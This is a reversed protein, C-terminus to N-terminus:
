AHLLPTGCFMCGLRHSIAWKCAERFQASLTDLRWTRGFDNVLLTPASGHSAFAEQLVAHLRPGIPLTLSEGNKAYCTAVSITNRELDVDEPRLTMVEQRRLGTLLGVLVVRRLALSSVALVQAEEEESLFRTKRQPNKLLKLTRRPPETLKGWEQVKHLLAKLTALEVNITGFAKGDEKRAKKSQELHWPTLDSLKKLGFFVKM